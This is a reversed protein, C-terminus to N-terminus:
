YTIETLISELGDIRGPWDEHVRYFLLGVGMYRLLGELYAKMEYNAIDQVIVYRANVPKPALSFAYSYETAQLAGKSVQSHFNEENASKIEFIVSYENSRIYLDVNRNEMPVLGRDLFHQAVDRLIDQHLAEAQDTKILFDITLSDTEHSPTIFRRTRVTDPDIRILDTEIFRRHLRLSSKAKNSGGVPISVDTGINIAALYQGFYEYPSLEDPWNHNRFLESRVYKSKLQRTIEVIDTAVISQAFYRGPESIRVEDAIHIISHLKEDFNESLLNVKDSVFDTNELRLKESDTRLRQFYESSDIDGSVVLYDKHVEDTLEELAIVFLRCYLFLESQEQYAIWLNKFYLEAPNFQIHRRNILIQYTLKESIDGNQLRYLYSM